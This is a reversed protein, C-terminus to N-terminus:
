STSTSRASATTPTRASASTPDAVDRQIRCSAHEGRCALRPRDVIDLADTATPLARCPRGRRGVAHPADRPELLPQREVAPQQRVTQRRRPEAGVELHESHRDARARPDVVRHAPVTITRGHEPLHRTLRDFQGRRQDVGLPSRGITLPSASQGAGAAENLQSGHRIAHEPNSCPTTAPPSAGPSSCRRM